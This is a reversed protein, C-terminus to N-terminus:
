QEKIVQREVDLSVCNDIIDARKIVKYITLLLIRFDFMFSTNKVYELDYKFKDEWGLLNRGNVQAWGTIGPKVNHRKIEEQTYYPLFSVLLPRPGVFSMESKLVNILQPLEDISTKRLFKGVKTIRDTNSLQRGVKETELCMTRFKYIRFIQGLKGVRDQVYLAPGKSDLKIAGVVIIFLPISLILGIVSFIVDLVRKIFRNYAYSTNLKTLCSSGIYM